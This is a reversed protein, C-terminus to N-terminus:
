NVGLYSTVADRRARGSNDSNLICDLAQMLRLLEQYALLIAPDDETLSASPDEVRTKLDQIFHNLVRAAQKHRPDDAKFQLQFKWWRAADHHAMALGAIARELPSLQTAHHEELAVSDLSNMLDVMLQGWGGELM